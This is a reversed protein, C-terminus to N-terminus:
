KKGKKISKNNKKKSAKAKKSLEKKVYPLIFDEYAKGISKEQVRKKEDSKNGKIITNTEDEIIIVPILKEEETIRLFVGDIRSYIDKPNIRPNIKKVVASAKLPKIKM